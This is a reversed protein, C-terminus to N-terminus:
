DNIKEIIVMACALENTDSLSLHIKIKQCNLKNLIFLLKNNLIEIEPKGFQDNVIRIDKFNIGRGIGIGLAKVLAEKASFRKALFNIQGNFNEKFRKNFIAIESDDFCKELFKYGFKQYIKKIRNIAVIDNGIGIIM